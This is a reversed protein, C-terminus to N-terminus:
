DFYVDANALNEFTNTGEEVFTASNEVFVGYGGGDAVTSDKLTLYGQSFGEVLINAEADQTGQFGTPHGAHRVEVNQLLNTMDSSNIQIGRWYGAQEVAGRFIVPEDASGLARIGGDRALFLIESDMEFIADESIVLDSNLTINDTIYYPVSSNLATWTVENQLELTGGTIEVANRTNSSSDFTTNADLTHVQDVPVAVPTGGIDTFNNSTFDRITGSAEVFLGYGEVDSITVNKLNLVGRSFGEILIATKNDALESSGTHMVMVHEFVNTIDSSNIQVGRWYGTEQVAGRMVIPAEATGSALITGRVLMYTDAAFDLYVGPEITLTSEVTVDDTIAYRKGEELVTDESISGSIEAEVNAPAGGFLPLNCAGLVVFALVPVLATLFLYKRM